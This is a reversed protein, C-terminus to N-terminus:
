SRNRNGECNQRFTEATASCTVGFDALISAVSMRQRTSASLAQAMDLDADAPLSGIKLPVVVSTLEPHTRVISM